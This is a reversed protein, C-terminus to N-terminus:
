HHFHQECGEASLMSISQGVIFLAIVPISARTYYSRIISAYLIFLFYYYGIVFVLHGALRFMKVM